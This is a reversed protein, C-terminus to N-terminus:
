EVAAETKMDTGDEEAEKTEASISDQEMLEAEEMIGSAEDLTEMPQMDEEAGTEAIPINNESIDTEAGQEDEGTNKELSAEVQRSKQEMEMGKSAILDQLQKSKESLIAEVREQTVGDMPKKGTADMGSKLQKELATREALLREIELAHERDKEQKLRKVLEMAEEKQKEGEEERRRREVEEQSQFVVNRRKVIGRAIRERDNRKDIADKM